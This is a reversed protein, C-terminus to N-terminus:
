AATPLDERNIPENSELKHAPSFLATVLLVGSLSLNWVAMWMPDHRGLAILGGGLLELGAALTLRRPHKAKKRASLLATVGALFSLWTVWEISPVYYRDGVLSIKTAPVQM